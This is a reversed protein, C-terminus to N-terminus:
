LGLRVPEGVRCRDLADLDVEVGWGPGDPVHLHGDEYRLGTVLLDDAFMLKGFVEVAHGLDHFRAAGLHALAASGLGLPQNHLIVGMGHLAAFEIASV